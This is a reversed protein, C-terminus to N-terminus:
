VLILLQNELGQDIFILKVDLLSKLSSCIWKDHSNKSSRGM